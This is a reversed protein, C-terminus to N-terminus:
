EAPHFKWHEPIFSYIGQVILSQVVGLLAYNLINTWQLSFHSLILFYFLSGGLLGGLITISIVGYKDIEINLMKAALLIVQFPVLFLSLSILLILSIAFPSLGSAEGAFFNSLSLFLVMPISNLLIGGIDSLIIGFIIRVKKM